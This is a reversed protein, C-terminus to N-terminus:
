GVKHRSEAVLSSIVEELGPLKRGLVQEARSVDLGCSDARRLEAQGHVSGIRAQLPVGLQDALVQIFEQKSSVQSSALNILGRQGCAVLDFIARACCAVDLSSTFYDIFLTMLEQRRLAAIAWEVFTPRGFEHRFGVINTRVVLSGPYSLAFGEGAFKSRAYENLLVVPADESHALRGAGAFFHDTSIQVLPIDRERCLRALVAAPRANTLYAQGPDAECSALAVNAVANIILEPQSLAVLQELQTSSQVDVEPESRRSFGQVEYNRLRAERALAQGLMGSSGLVVVKM